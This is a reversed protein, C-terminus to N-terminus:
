CEFIERLATEYRSKINHVLEAEDRVDLAHVLLVNRDQDIDVSVTGPTLSVISGLVTAVFPHRIALPVEIFAPALRDSPGLVLRAVHINAIVIDGLVRLFLLPAKYVNIIRPADHWFRRTVMPIAVALTAGLLADGLGLEPALALWLALIAVSLLPNPFLRETISM